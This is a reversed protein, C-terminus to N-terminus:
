APWRRGCSCNWTYIFGGYEGYYDVGYYSRTKRTVTHVLRHWWIM